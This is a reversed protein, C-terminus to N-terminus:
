LSEIVVGKEDAKLLKIEWGNKLSRIDSEIAKAFDSNDIINMLTPGSGSVFMAASNNKICIKEVEDYEHILLKRYNQHLRDRLSKNILNIDGNELSKLLVAVRSINFIADEFRVERPLLMRAENTSTEYDPILACFIISEHIKYRTYYPIGDSILSATLGGYVAPAINDPHGEIEVATRFLEDKTMNGKLLANAGFVGAAICASSSGLGRSVPIKTDMTIKLGDIKIGLKDATRKFSKYVLNEKNRYEQPCGEIILGEEIKEFTYSNYLNLSLGLTDFGPGMNATSAPVTVKIM